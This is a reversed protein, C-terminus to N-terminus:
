SEAKKFVTYLIEERASKRKEDDYSPVKKIDLIVNIMTEQIVHQVGRTVSRTIEEAVCQSLRGVDVTSAARTIADLMLAPIVSKAITEQLVERIAYSEFAYKVGTQAQENLVDQIQQEDIKIEM